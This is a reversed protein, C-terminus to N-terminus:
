PRAGTFASAPLAAIAAEIDATTADPTNWPKSDGQSVRAVIFGPGLGNTRCYRIAREAEQGDIYQAVRIAAKEELGFRALAAVAVGEAEHRAPGRWYAPAQQQKDQERTKDERTKDPGPRTRNEAPRLRSAKKREADLARAKAGNSLHRDWDTFEISDDHVRLWDERMMAKAFGPQQVYRDIWAADLGVVRGDTSHNTAWSWLKMLRGTVAFADIKLGTAM